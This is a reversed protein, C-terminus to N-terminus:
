ASITGQRESSFLLALLHENHLCGLGPAVNHKLKKLKLDFVERNIGKQTAGLETETLETIDEKRAPHKRQMQEIIAPDRHNGTRNSQLQKWTKCYQSRSLLDAACCIQANDKNDQLQRDVTHVLFAAITDAKYNTILGVWDGNDYQNM